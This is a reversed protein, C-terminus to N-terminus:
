PLVVLKGNRNRVCTHAVNVVINSLGKRQGKKVNINLKIRDGKPTEFEELRGPGRDGPRMVQILSTLSRDVKNKSIIFIKRIGTRRFAPIRNIKRLSQEFQLALDFGSPDRFREILLDRRLINVWERQGSGSVFLVRFDLNRVPNVTTKCAEPAAQAHVSFFVSGVAMMVTFAFRTIM